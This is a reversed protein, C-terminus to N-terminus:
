HEHCKWSNQPLCSVDDNEIIILMELHIWFYWLIVAILYSFYFYIRELVMIIGSSLFFNFFNDDLLIMIERKDERKQRERGWKLKLSENEQQNYHSHIETGGQHFNCEQDTASHHPFLSHLHYHHFLSCHYRVIIHDCFWTKRDSYLYASGPDLKERPNGPHERKWLYIKVMFNLSPSYWPSVSNYVNIKM